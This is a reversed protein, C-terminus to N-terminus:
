PCRVIRGARSGIAVDSRYTQIRGGMGADWGEGEPEPITITALRKIARGEFIHAKNPLAYALFEDLAMDAPIMEFLGPHAYEVDPVQAAIFLGQGSLRTFPRDLEVSALKFLSVTDIQTTDAAGVSTMSFLLATAGSATFDFNKTGNTSYSAGQTGNISLVVPTTSINSIVFTVRYFMAASTAITQALSGSTGIGGSYEAKNAVAGFNVATWSALSGTFGGNAVLNIGIAATDIALTGFWEYCSADTAQGAIVAGDPISGDTNPIEIRGIEDGPFFNAAAGPELTVYPSNFLFNALSTGDNQVRQLQAPFRAYDFIIGNPQAWEATLVPRIEISRQNIQGFDGSAVNTTTWNEPERSCDHALNGIEYRARFVDNALYTLPKTRGCSNKIRVSIFSTGMRNAPYPYISVGEVGTQTADRALSIKYRRQIFNYQRSISRLMEIDRVFAVAKRTEESESVRARVYELITQLNIGAM